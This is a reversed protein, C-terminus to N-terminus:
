ATVEYIRTDTTAIWEQHAGGQRQRARIARVFAGTKMTNPLSSASIGSLWQGGILLATLGSSAHEIRQLAGELADPTKWTQIDQWHPECGMRRVCYRCVVENPVALDPSSTRAAQIEDLLTAVSSPDISLENTGSRLSFTIIRGPAQGYAEAYLHAYFTMQHKVAAAAEPAALHGTKLDVITGNPPPIVLDIIGFLNRTEDVFLQESLVASASTLIGALEIGRTKLRARTMTARPMEAVNIRHASLVSDFIEQLRRGPDEGDWQASQVWEQLALHTIAGANGPPTAPPKSPAAAPTASAPCKLMRWTSTASWWQAQSMESM